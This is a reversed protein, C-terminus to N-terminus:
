AAANTAGAQRATRIAEQAVVPPAPLRRRDQGRGSARRADEHKQRVCGAHRGTHRDGAEWPSGSASEKPAQKAEFRQRRVHSM